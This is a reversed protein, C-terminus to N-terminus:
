VIMRGEDVEAEAARKVQRNVDHLTLSWLSEELRDLMM